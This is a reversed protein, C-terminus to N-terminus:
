PMLIIGEVKVQYNELQMLRTKIGTSFKQIIQTLVGGNQNKIKGNNLKM